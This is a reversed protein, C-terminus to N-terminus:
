TFVRSSGLGLLVPQGVCPGPAACAVHVCRQWADACQMGRPDGACGLQVAVAATWAATMHSGAATLAATLHFGAATLAATLQSAAATLAARLHSGAATLAATM